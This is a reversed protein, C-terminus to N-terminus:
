VVLITKEASIVEIIKIAIQTTKTNKKFFDKRVAIM